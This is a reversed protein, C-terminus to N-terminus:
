GDASFYTTGSDLPGVAMSFDCAVRSWSPPRTMLSCLSRTKAHAAEWAVCSGERHLDEHVKEKEKKQDNFAFVLAWGNHIL